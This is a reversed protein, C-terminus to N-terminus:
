AGAATGVTDDMAHWTACGWTLVPLEFHLQRLRPSQSASPSRPPACRQGKEDLGSCKRWARARCHAARLSAVEAAGTALRGELGIPWTKPRALEASRRDTGGASWCTGGAARLGELARGRGRGRAAARARAGQGRRAAERARGKEHGRRPAAARSRSGGRRRRRQCAGSPTQFRGWARLRGRVSNM